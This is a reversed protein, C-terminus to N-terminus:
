SEIGVFGCEDRLIIALAKDTFLQHRLTPNDKFLTAVAKRTAKQLAGKSLSSMKKMKLDFRLVCVRVGTYVGWMICHPMALWGSANGVDGLICLM